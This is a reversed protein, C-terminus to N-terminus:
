LGWSDRSFVVFVIPVTNPTCGITGQVNMTSTTLYVM